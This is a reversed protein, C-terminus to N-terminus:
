RQMELQNRHFLQRRHECGEVLIHFYRYLRTALMAVSAQDGKNPCGLRISSPSFEHTEFCGRDVGCM